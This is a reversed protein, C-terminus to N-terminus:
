RDDLGSSLQCERFEPELGLDTGDPAQWRSGEVHLLQLPLCRHEQLVGRDLIPRHVFGRGFVQRLRRNSSQSNPNFFGFPGDGGGPPSTHDRKVIYGGSIEPESNDEPTLKKINVREKGRKIKEEFVYVGVYDRRTLKGGHRNVFVEVFRTRAAYRGMKNSLEYALVDRMLTKDSYPAYLVWDSDAPLGLISAKRSEGSDNRTKVTFSAKPLRLSSFGRRKIECRGDYDGPGTLSSRKGQSDIIRLSATVTSEKAIQQGFANVIVLPLNSTFNALGADVTTYTQSVTPSPALGPEFAKAKVLATSTISIPGSYDRSATTPDSGDLTYRIKAAPSKATLELSVDEAFVGGIKSFDPPTARPGTVIEPRHKKPTSGSRPAPQGDPSPAVRPPGGVPRPPNLVTRVPPPPENQRWFVGMVLLVLVGFVVWPVKSQRPKKGPLKPPVSGTPATGLSKPDPEPNVKDM